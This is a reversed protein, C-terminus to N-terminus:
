PRRDLCRLIARGQLVRPAGGLNVFVCTISVSEDALSKVFFGRMQTGVQTKKVSSDGLTVTRWLADGDLAYRVQITQAPDYPDWSGPPSAPFTEPLRVIEPDPRTLRLIASDTNSALVPQVLQGAAELDHTVSEIAQRSGSLAMDRNDSATMTSSYSRVLVTVTTLILLLLFSAIMVEALTTGRRM